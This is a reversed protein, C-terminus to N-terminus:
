STITCNDTAAPWIANLTTLSSQADKDPLATGDTPTSMTPAPDGTVVGDSCSWASTNALQDIAQVCAYYTAGPTLALSGATATTGAGSGSAVITGCAPTTCFRWAYSATGSGTGDSAATWNADLQTISGQADVDAAAGDSPTSMTPAATDVYVGDSCVWPSSQPVADNARVCAYYTSGNFLSLSGASASLGATSGSALVSGCAPSTCFRWDYGTVGVDDTAAPWIAALTTTSLQFDKDPLTSGDTPTSM